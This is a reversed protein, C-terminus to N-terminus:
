SAARKFWDVYMGIGESVPAHWLFPEDNVFCPSSVLSYPDGM